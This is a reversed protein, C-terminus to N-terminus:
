LNIYWKITEELREEFNKSLSFGLENKAKSDDIAYRLDHGLRDAVFSIQEKYSKGDSRPKLQDLIKCILTVIKINTIEADGGFCYTEGIKGKQLALEVGNCHDEVYIWDRINKGNGYVPIKKDNLCSFIVTPILKERHQRPGFNNSCNTTLTPLGYTKNWARVLHDSAAKSASYPSNPKYTTKEDFKPDNENLSGYVEDTSIHLFRFNDKKNGKLKQWYELSGSLMSFTGNINTKIFVAPGSISNDVHSEAAFNVVWDIDFKELTQTILNQNGIDNKIFHYNKNNEIEALNQLNASYSLNDINVVLNGSKIQKLVFCSGIFGYGGTILIKIM